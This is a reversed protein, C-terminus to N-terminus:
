GVVRKSWRSRGALNIARVRYAYRRGRLTQKDLFGAAQTTAIRVGSRWVEYSAANTVARWRVRAQGTSSERRVSLETPAEPACTGTFRPRAAFVPDSVAQRFAALAGPSSDFRTDIGVENMSYWSVARIAPYRSRIAAFADRIWPAKGGAADDVTGMELVALPRKSLRLLETYVGSSDLKEAFPLIPGGTDLSGYNSIGVWDVYEDGPYYWRLENWWDQQRWADAHFFWTVNTAGEERFLTVLRRYGDRFREAGDPYSPNGYGATEGAGNWRGNWPGWDDNVETGFEVLIPIKTERAERAWARLAGDFTGALINDLSFRREPNQQRPGLGLAVGSMPLLWVYPIQGNRWLTVVRARPFRMGKFWYQSFSAWTLKRGALREFASVKSARM